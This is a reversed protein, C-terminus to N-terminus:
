NDKDGEVDSWSDDDEDWTLTRRVSPDRLLIDVYNAAVIILFFYENDVKGESHNM